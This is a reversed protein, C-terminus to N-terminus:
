FEIENLAAAKESSQDMSKDIIEALTKINRYDFLDQVSVKQPFKENLLSYIRILSHSDGGIEFFDDIISIQSHGLVNNWISHIEKETLTQPPEINEVVNKEKQHEIENLNAYDIKGNATLPIKEIVMYVSPVMYPPLYQKIETKINQIIGDRREPNHLVLFAVLYENAQNKNIVVVDKVKNTLQIMSEIEGLEIRYGRIKTQRDVRGLLLLNGAPDWKVIDGTKFLKEELQIPNQIFKERSLRQDNIYGRAIGDGSLYLEGPIGIPTLNMHDDFVYAKTNAIPKGLLVEGPLCKWSLVDVTAETPGYHNYVTYGKKLLEDKVDKRLREGGSIVTRLSEYKKTEGLLLEAIVSPVYNIINIKNTDIFKGFENRDYILKPNPIFVTAGNILSGFIDEVSPDFTFDTLQMVHVGPELDFTEGFWHILHLVNRHEIMVGKPRGTTGSTYMVYALQNPTVEPFAVVAETLESFSDQVNVIKIDIAVNKARDLSSHDVLMISVRCDALMYKIREEPYDLNIPLYAGGAKLIALLAIHMEISPSLMVGIIDEKEVGSQLLFQALLDSQKDLERYTLSRYLDVVAPTNPSCNAQQSFLHHITTDLNWTQKTNNFDKTVQHTEEETLINMQHIPLHPNDVMNELLTMFHDRMRRITDQQFIDTNYLFSIEIEEGLLIGITLDYNTMETTEVNRIRMGSFDSKMLSSDIPYNEVVVISDFLSDDSHIQSYKKVQALSTTEYDQRDKLHEYVKKVVHLSTSNASNKVRLPITNIFLGVVENLGEIAKSRGAITTGFVVDECQNYKQLLVGWASYLLSSLTVEYEKNFSRLKEKLNCSFLVKRTDMKSMERTKISSVPLETKQNFGRLYESWFNQQQHSNYIEAKLLKIYDKYTAKKAMEVYNGGYETFFDKLIIGTSWGDFLIHHNSIIMEYDLENLRCLTVRFAVDTLSFKKRRDNEKVENLANEISFSSSLDVFAVKISHHKLIIQVPNKLGEWRFMTRLSEHNAIVRNWAHEFRFHDVKGTLRISLQVFYQETTPEKLYQLLIGEQLTTLSLIDQVNRKDLKVIAM